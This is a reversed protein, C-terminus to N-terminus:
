GLEKAMIELDFGERRIRLDYYLLTIVVAVIPYLFALLVYQIVGLVPSGRMGIVTAAIVTLILVVFFGMLYIVYTLLLTGTVKWMSGGALRWSRGIADSASLRELLLAPMAGFTRFTVYFGPFILAIFGFFILLGRLLAVLLVSLLRSLTAALAGAIDVTGSLYSDSVAIVTAAETISSCVFSLIGSAFFLPLTTLTPQAPIFMRLIIVPLMAVVSIAVFQAYHQRLLRFAADIIETASRPHLATPSV